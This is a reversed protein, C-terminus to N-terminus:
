YVHLSILLSIAVVCFSNRLTVSFILTLKFGRTRRLIISPCSFHHHLEQIKKKKEKSSFNGIRMILHFCVVYLRYTIGKINDTNKLIVCNCVLPPRKKVVVSKNSIIFYGFLRMFGTWIKLYTLPPPCSVLMKVSAWHCFLDHFNLIQFHVTM